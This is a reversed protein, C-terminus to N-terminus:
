SAGKVGALNLGYVMVAPMYQTYNDLSIRRPKDEVVENRTSTNLDKLEHNFMAAVGYTIFAAPIILRKGKLVYENTACVTDKRQPQESRITDQAVM